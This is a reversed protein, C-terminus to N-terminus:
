VFFHIGDLSLWDKWQYPSHCYFNGNINITITQASGGSAQAFYKLKLPRWGDPLTAIDSSGSGGNILGRLYVIRGVKIAKPTFYADGYRKWNNGLNLVIMADQKTEQEDINRELQQVRQTLANVTSLLENIQTQQTQNTNIAENLKTKLGHNEKVIDDLKMGLKDYDSIDQENLIFCYNLFIYPPMSVHLVLLVCNEMQNNEKSDDDSKPEFKSPIGIAEPIHKLKSFEEQKVSATNRINWLTM